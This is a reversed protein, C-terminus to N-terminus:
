SPGLPYDAHKTWTGAESRELLSFSDVRFRAMFDSLGDYADDLCEDPIQQAVTVHPHYPFDLDCSLPGSRISKEM